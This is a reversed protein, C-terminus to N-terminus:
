YALLDKEKGFWWIVVLDKIVEHLNQGVLAITLFNPAQLEWNENRIALPSLSSSRERGSNCVAPM